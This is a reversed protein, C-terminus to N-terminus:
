KSTIFLLALMLGVPTGASYSSPTSKYVCILELIFKHYIKCTCLWLARTYIDTM